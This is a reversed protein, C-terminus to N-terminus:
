KSKVGDMRVRVTLGSSWLVSAKVAADFEPTGTGKEGTGNVRIGAGQHVMDKNHWVIM